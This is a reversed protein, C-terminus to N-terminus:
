PLPQLLTLSRSVPCYVAILHRPTSTIEAAMEISYFEQAESQPADPPTPDAASMRQPSSLQFDGRAEAM